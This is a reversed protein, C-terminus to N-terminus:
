YALVIVFRSPSHPLFLLCVRVNRNFDKDVSALLYSISFTVTTKIQSRVLPIAPSM